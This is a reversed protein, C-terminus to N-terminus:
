KIQREVYGLHQLTMCLKLMESVTLLCFRKNLNVDSILIRSSSKIQYRGSRPYLM